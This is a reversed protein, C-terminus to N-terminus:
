RMERWADMMAKLNEWPTDPFLADAPALVFGDPGLKEIARRVANWIEDRSAGHLTVASSVGGALAIRGKFKEKILGIDSKEQEPDVYYLADIGAALLQKAMALVGNTMVYAFKAGAQHATEVRETLDPLIYRQFLAPSWFDTSSYWGRQVVVDVAGVDLMMETRRKDFAHVIGFLEEALDPETMASMVAYEVGCLWVVLDMGFASWGQVMVEHEDAFRRIRAMRERYAALQSSTPDQLLYRLKPLDEPGAVAHKVGRPVNMDEILMVRGPQVVWGPEMREDTRRVIHRLVGAPTQYERCLLWHSQAAAPAEQWDRIKVEPHMGWPPSVDLIDDLGLSLWRLAREFDDEVSWPQPLTHIHELRMSYWYALERGDRKWRLPPPVPFGFCSCYMPLHDPKEYRIAALLRERSNM